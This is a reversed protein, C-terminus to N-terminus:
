AARCSRAWSVADKVDDPSIGRKALKMRVIEASTRAEIEAM